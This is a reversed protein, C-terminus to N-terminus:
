SVDDESDVLSIETTETYCNVSNPVPVGGDMLEMDRIVFVFVKISWLTHKYSDQAFPCLGKSVHFKVVHSFM